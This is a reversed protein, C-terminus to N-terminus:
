RSPRPSGGDPKAGTSSASPAREAEPVSRAAPGAQGRTLAYEREESPALPPAEPPVPVLPEDDGDATRSFAAGSAIDDLVFRAEAPTAAAPYGPPAPVRWSRPIRGAALDFLDRESRAVVLAGERAGRVEDYRIVHDRRFLVPLGRTVAFGWGYLRRVRGLDKGDADVVRQGLRVGSRERM